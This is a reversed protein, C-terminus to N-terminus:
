SALVSQIENLAETPLPGFKLAGANEEVQAVTKFGPIPIFAPSRSWLWGLAVIGCWIWAHVRYPETVALVYSTVMGAAILLGWIVFPRGDYVVASRSDEMVQRIFNLEEFAEQRNM